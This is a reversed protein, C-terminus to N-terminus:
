AGGSVPIGAGRLTRRLHGADGDFVAGDMGANRAGDINFSLDDIFFSEEPKLGYERFLVEYIERRPKLLKWDASVIKGDLYRSGPIRSFYQHLDSSANSLLYLRYGLGKLEELLAEMGPVPFLPAKWWGRVLEEAYGHLREPLRLRMVALAEDQSITGEDLWTWEPCRFVAASLRAADEAPLGLRGTMRDPDWYLLVQGMDFVINRIM